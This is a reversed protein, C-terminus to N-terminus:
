QQQYFPGESVELDAMAMMDMICFRRRKVNACADSAQEMTVEEKAEEDMLRRRICSTKMEKQQQMLIM